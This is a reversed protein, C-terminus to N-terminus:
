NMTPTSPPQNSKSSASSFTAFASPPHDASIVSITKDDFKPTQDLTNYYIITKDPVHLIRRAPKKM